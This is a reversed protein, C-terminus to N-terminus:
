PAAPAGKRPVLRLHVPPPPAELKVDMDRPLPITVPKPPYVDTKRTDDETLVVYGSLKQGRLNELDSLSGRVTIKLRWEGPDKRDLEYRSWIGGKEYWAAPALVHVPVTLAITESFAKIKFRVTVQTIEPEVAIGAISRVIDVKDGSKISTLDTPITELEPEKRTPDREIRAMIEEWAIRGVPVKIRPPIIEASGELEAGHRVFRVPLEKTLLKDLRVVVNDPSVSVLTLGAQTIGLTRELIRDTPIAHAEGSRLTEESSLDDLSVRPRQELQRQFRRRSGQSGRVDFSVEITPDSLIKVDTRRGTHLRLTVRLSLDGAQEMDAYVWVLVTIAAVWFFTRVGGLWWQPSFRAPTDLYTRRAM